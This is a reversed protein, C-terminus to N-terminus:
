NSRLDSLMKVGLEDLLEVAWPTLAFLMYWKGYTVVAELGTGGDRGGRREQYFAQTIKIACFVKAIDLMYPFIYKMFTGWFIGAGVDNAVATGVILTATPFFSYFYNGKKKVIEVDKIERNEKKVLKLKNDSDLKFVLSNTM